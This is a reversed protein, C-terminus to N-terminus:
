SCHVQKQGQGRTKQRAPTPLNAAHREQQVPMSFFENLAIRLENIEITGSHDADFFSWRKSDAIWVSFDEFETGHLCAKMETKTIRGNRVLGDARDMVKQVTLQSMPLFELADSNWRFETNTQMEHSSVGVAVKECQRCAERALGDPLKEMDETAADLDGIPQRLLPPCVIPVSRLGVFAEGCAQDGEFKLRRRRSSCCVAVRRWVFLGIRAFLLADFILAGSVLVLVSAPMAELSVPQTRVSQLATALWHMLDDIRTRAASSAPVVTLLEVAAAECTDEAETPVFTWVPEEPNTEAEKSVSLVAEPSPDAALHVVAAAECTDEAETPVFTWVPEEPNTEAEKSVSLVAEPSPDAALHLLRAGWLGAGGFFAVCTMAATSMAISTV